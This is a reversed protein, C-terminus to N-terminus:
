TREKELIPAGQEVRAGGDICISIYFSHPLPKHEVFGTQYNDRELMGISAHIEITRGAAAAAKLRKVISQGLEEIQVDVSQESM